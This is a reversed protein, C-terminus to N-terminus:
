GTVRRRGSEHRIMIMIAAIIVASLRMLPRLRFVRAPTKDLERQTVGDGSAGPTNGGLVTRGLPNRSGM